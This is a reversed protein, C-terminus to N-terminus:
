EFKSNWGLNSIFKMKIGQNRVLTLIKKTNQLSCMSVNCCCFTSLNRQGPSYNWFKGPSPAWFTSFWQTLTISFSFNLRYIYFSWFHLKMKRKVFYRFFIWENKLDQMELRVKQLINIGVPDLSLPDPITMEIVIQLVVTQLHWNWWCRILLELTIHSITKLIHM